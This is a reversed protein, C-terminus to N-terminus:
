GSRAEALPVRMAQGHKAMERQTAALVHRMTITSGEACALFAAGLAAAKIDAGTLSLREALLEHDVGEAIRDGNPACQPLALHWLRLREAPGPPLFDIMARLRRRFANDLESKRNTALVAIGEFTEIRQLLYNIELNAYRDHSDKSQTRTGFLADAEDFLLLIDPREAFAFATRLRKETEGIYKDVVGALDIRFLQLGLERALVQTAMTKGVGSPGAFLAVLGSGLHNLRDFGWGELVEARLRVQAAFDAIAAQTDAPLVLDDWGYPTPLRTLLEPIPEDSGDHDAGAAIRAIEGVTVRMAAIAPPAPLDSLREWLSLREALAIPALALGAIEHHSSDGPEYCRVVPVAAPILRRWLEPPAASAGAFCALAGEFRAMRFVATMAEVADDSAALLRATDILLLPEGRQMALQAALTRRGSGWAGTLDAMRGAALREAARAAAEPQICSFAPLQQNGILEVGRGTLLPDHWAGAVLSHAVAPAAQWGALAPIPAKPDTEALRWRTLGSEEFLEDELDRDFLQRVLSMSPLLASSDDALYAFVRGLEPCAVLASAAALLDAASASLEFREILRRWGPDCSLAIDARDILPGLERSVADRAYFDARAAAMEAAPLLRRRVEGATITLGQDLSTADDAWLAEVFRALRAARLRTREAIVALANTM